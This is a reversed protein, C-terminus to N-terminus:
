AKFKYICKIRESIKDCRQNILEIMIASLKENNNNSSKQNSWLQKVKDEYKKKYEERENKATKLYFNLLKTKSQIAVDKYRQFLQQRIDKNQISDILTSQAIPSCQFSQEASNYYNIQQKLFTLEQETTEQEYKSQCIQKM